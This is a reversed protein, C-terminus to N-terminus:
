LLIQLLIIGWNSATLTFLCIFSLVKDLSLNEDTKFAKVAKQDMPTKSKKFISSDMEDM